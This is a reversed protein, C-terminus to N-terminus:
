LLELCSSLIHPARVTAMAQVRGQDLLGCSGPEIMLSDCFSRKQKAPIGDAVNVACALQWAACQCTRDELPDGTLSACQNSVCSVANFLDTSPAAFARLKQEFDGDGAADNSPLTPVVPGFLSDYTTDAFPLHFPYQILPYVVPQAPM